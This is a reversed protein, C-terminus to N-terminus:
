KNQLCRVCRGEVKASSTVNAYNWSINFFYAYLRKGGYSEYNVELTTWFAANTGTEGYHDSYHYGKPLASFGYYDTGTGMKNDWSYNSRLALGETDPIYDTHLFELLENFETSSPVHWGNPCIGQVNSPSSNNSAANNMVAAWTYFYGVENIPYTIGYYDYYYSRIFYSRDDVNNDYLSTNDSLLTLSTGNAYKDTKLDEAMWCQNGIKVWKYKRGNVDYLYGLYGLEELERTYGAQSIIGIGIGSELMESLTVSGSKLLAIFDDMSAGAYVLDKLKVGKIALIENLPAHAHILEKITAGANYLKEISVGKKILEELSVGLELVKSNHLDDKLCSSLILLFALLTFIRTNM